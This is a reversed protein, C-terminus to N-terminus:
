RVGSAMHPSTSSSLRAEGPYVSPRFHLTGPHEMIDHTHGHEQAGHSHDHGHDHDHHHAPAAGGLAPAPIFQATPAM